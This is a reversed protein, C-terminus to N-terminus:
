EPPRSSLKENYFTRYMRYNAMVKLVYDKSQAFAIEPVYRDALDSRSRNVWRKVNDEGGNYAAAVAEPQNPFLEFLDSVYRSGFLIATAPDYLEDQEFDARGLEAAIKNSTNSIFQMMGRAAAYSKVDPRYRSEQRVISLLFRPDVKMSTTHTLFAGVYPTPFLLEVAERPILEVQYDAPVQRWVSEAFVVSKFARDGRRNAVALTYALDSAPPVAGKQDAELEPAAEDFLGLFALDDALAAHPDADAATRITKRPEPRGLPILKFEPIKKYAPVLAYIKRLSELQKAREGADATLRIASQLNRRNADADRGEAAKLAGLRAEVLAKTEQGVALARLRETARWGYYEGRGDPVSLYADIADAFARKQELVFGRLFTAETKSTGGPTNPGGLDPLTLLKDLGALAANWDSRAIDIRTEAFLALAEPPKGHFIDQVKESRKHAEVEEGEDRLVDIINLYARDLREDAPFKNIFDQYRKVAERHKGVRSYANGLQLLADKAAPHDPFQEIVREFWKISESFNREQVYGRGTQFVADPVIGSTPHNDIIAAYHPRADAFDRNFQYISARRLHEYDALKPVATEVSGAEVDLKDLAAVAALAFDDPQAPNSLGNILGSFTDRAAGPNGSLLLSRGLMLKNERTIQDDGKTGPARGGKTLSEFARAAQEYNGSEFWSRARRNRAADVVLSDPFFAVIEDLYTRELVLNGSAKAISALHFLAYPKLPSNRKVVALYGGAASSASGAKEQLRAKMYDYENARFIEPHKQELTDLGSIADAYRREDAASRVAAHMEDATQPFYPPTLALLLLSLAAFLKM